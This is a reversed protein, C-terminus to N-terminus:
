KNPEIHYFPVSVDDATLHKYESNVIAENVLYDCMEKATLSWLPTVTGRRNMEYYSTPSWTKRITIVYFYTVGSRYM